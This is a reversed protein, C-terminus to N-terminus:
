ATGGNNKRGRIAWFQMDLDPFEGAIHFAFGSSKELSKWGSSNHDLYFYTYDAHYPLQRPATPMPQLSVGPLHSKVLDRIKDISSIKVQTPFIRALQDRPISAKVALVFSCQDILRDDSVAATYFGFEHPTLKLSIANPELMVSLSKRLSNILPQFCVHPKEHHYIPWSEPIRGDHTFTALEGAASAFLEYLREPHVRQITSYHNFVPSLRNTVQLLMFDAVDAVSNQSLQGLRESIQHSRQQLLGTFDDLTRGLQPIAQIDYAMPMFERDLIISGDSRKEKVRAIPICSYSSRDEREMMLTLRLQGVQIEWPDADASTVDRTEQNFITLRASEEANGETLIEPVGNTWLPLCLYIVENVINKEGIDLAPPPPAENPIEFVTRDPFIGIASVITIRGHLLNEQNIEIAELGYQYANIADSRRRIVYDHYRSQQQFHNPRIFQGDTWLPPNRNSVSIEM